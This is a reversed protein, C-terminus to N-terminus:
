SISLRGDSSVTVKWAEGAASAPKAQIAEAIVDVAQYVTEGNEDKTTHLIIPECLGVTLKGPDVPLAYYYAGIFPAM